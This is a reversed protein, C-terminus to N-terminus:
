GLVPDLTRPAALARKAARGCVRPDQRYSGASTTGTAFLFLRLQWNM